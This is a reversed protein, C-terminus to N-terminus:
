ADSGQLAHLLSEITWADSSRLDWGDLPPPTSGEAVIGVRQQRWQVEIPTDNTDGAGEGVTFRTHGAEAAARALDAAHADFIDDFASEDTTMRQQPGPPTAPRGSSPHHTASTTIVADSDLHQLLNGLHLWDSWRRQDPPQDSSTDYSAIVQVRPNDREILTAGPQGHTSVWPLAARGTATGISPPPESVAIADIAADVDAVHIVTDPRTAAIAISSALARWPEPAPHRLATLLQEFAGTDLTAFTPHDDRYQTAAHRKAKSRAATPLPLASPVRSGDTLADLAAKVDDYTLTWVRTGTARLTARREADADVRAPEAGHYAWGDLYIAVPQTGTRDMREAYFDPTTRHDRLEFQERVRWHSGDSFRLDFRVRSAQHPEPTTTLHLRNREAWRQLTVKFMRELESQRARDLNIGTITGNPAPVLPFGALAEDLVALAHQRTIFPLERRGVGNYLCRHCGPRGRSQCECDNILDRARRLIRELQAPNALRLLYGTGGPVSDHIVLYRVRTDPDNAAPFDTEIVRLHSPDGGFSDRLGLMLAAKFSTMREKAEFEAVPVLVRVAETTLEHALILHDWQPKRAGSRVKCWTRHHNPDDAERADGRVGLVGGCHRCAVFGTATVEQGHVRATITPAGRSSAGPLGLNLTRIIAGRAAEIGFPVDSNKHRLASGPEIKAPDIDVATVVEHWERDRDDSDDGVRATLERETSSVQRLPLVTHRAGHDAAAAHGCRPCQTIPTTDGHRGWGCVPCLRWTAHAPEHETGVDLADIRVKHANVYFHNGPALERIAVSAARQYEANIAEFRRSSEDAPDHKPNPRWMNVQLSVTEDFLTYNPLLGLEELAGLVDKRQATSVRRVVYRLEANLRALTEVDEDSPNTRAELEKRRERLRDRQRLLENQRAQWRDLVGHVHDRMDAEIWKTLDYAVRRELHTGFLDTFAIALDVNAGATLLKHLWGDESGAHQVLHGITRPMEGVDGLLGEGRRAAQDVLFALYQRRLIEIADLYCAPADIDGAIMAEPERLYYLSRPDAEAFTTVFANGTQRGARGVRQVYNAQNPPVATLMVSSLDGIDIGMELTPTATLVNPADPRGGDKFGTEIAERQAQDLLGTHESAVVRRIRAARYLARYYNTRKVPAPELRGECRVRMCPRGIWEDFREPAAYHRHACLNCRLESPPADLPSGGVDVFSVRKAPIGWVTGKDSQRAQLVGVSTLEHLADRLLQEARDRDGGLLKRTWLVTWAQNGTIPDLNESSPTAFFAPASIGRPFKPAIPDSGGWIEWRKGHRAVFCHLLEHFIGGRLRLREILGHLWERLTVDDALDLLGAARVADRAFDILRSWEEDTIEVEAVATGTTELTRGLRSRLGAELVADFSLRRALQTRADNAAETGPQEWAARLEDEWALDPPVLSFLAGAADARADAIALVTDAVEPLPLRGRTQLAGSLTARLNFRHTRGSFFAARHAADQVSDTFALLKREDDSVLESGFMQTIGVSALTTVRSGLFRIADRTGCSPCRQQKAAEDRAEASAEDSTMGGILVPVRSGEGTDHHHVQGDEPDLWLIDSEAENAALMTRTRARERVAVGYADNGTDLREIAFSGQAAAKNAVGMWGSRGCTTCYVAPLELRAADPDSGPTDAWRFSPESAIARALRTVERVWVQVEVPFLPRESGGPGRGRALSVLAVFREVARELAEPDDDLAARWEPLQSALVVVLDRWPRPGAAAHRLLTATLRHKLLRDGVAQADDFPEGTFLRALADLDGDALDAVARPIPIPLALDIGHCVREVSKRREGIIADPDFPQGFVREAFARMDGQASAASGLTASTGVCAVGHLPSGSAATGLRHGLRRLLMAVDTGQAGDYTHFEDLVLYRLPQEAASTNTAWLRQRHANTLLRDLMKYNTLLIDPPDALLADKDTILHDDGMARHPKRSGDDGIWVGARVGAASLDPDRLMRAIRREQDAVLANMPYLLLAKLGPIDHQRAWLCHDFIPILFAESKGSGTGTTILTSRPQRERGALRQWATLQHAYPQFGPPTWTVGRPADPEAEEFPLRVRLYPGRFIGDHEDLLFRTLADYAADDTLAFTTALYEVLSSRFERAVLSPIM